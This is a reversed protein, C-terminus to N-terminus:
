AYPSLGQCPRCVDGYKAPYWDGCRPGAVVAGKSRHALVEATVQVPRQSVMAACGVALEAQLADEDQEKKPKEKLFWARTEPYPALKGVDLWVRVGAGTRKDFLSMAYVGFDFIRLWGNGTTCPTLMQIADPLCQVTESIADYLVGRPLADKAAQVMYGGIIVGPAPYGHFKRAEELFATHTERNIQMDTIM